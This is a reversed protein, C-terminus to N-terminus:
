PKLWLKNAGIQLIAPSIRSIVNTVVASKIHFPVVTSINNAEKMGKM